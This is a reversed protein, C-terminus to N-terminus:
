IDEGILLRTKNPERTLFGRPCESSIRWCRRCAEDCEKRTEYVEAKDEKLDTMFCPHTWVTLM